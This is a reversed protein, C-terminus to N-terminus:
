DEKHVRARLERHDLIGQTNLRPQVATIEISFGLIDMIDGEDVQVQPSVLIKAQLEEQEASGRSASSDARVSTQDVFGNLGVIGVMVPTAPGYTAKGYLDRSVKGRIEARVNPRFM